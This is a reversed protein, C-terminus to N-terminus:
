NLLRSLMRRGMAEIVEVESGANLKGSLDEPIPLEYVEYTDSDMLQASEGKVSVVQAKVKKIVPAEVDADSPKLLTKKQGDFIGIATVRMKASGHKGPSSTEIDVVRCPIDDILIFRGVKVDKMSIFTKEEEVM